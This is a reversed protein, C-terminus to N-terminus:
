RLIRMVIDGEDPNETTVIYHVPTQRSIETFRQTADCPGPRILGDAFQHYDNVARIGNDIITAHSNHQHRGPAYTSGNGREEGRKHLEDLTITLFEDREILLTYTQHLLLYFQSLDYISNTIALFEKSDLVYRLVKLPLAARIPNNFETRFHLYQVLVPMGTIFAQLNSQIQSQLNLHNVYAKYENLKQYTQYFVKEQFEGQAAAEDNSTTYVPKIWSQGAQQQVTLLAMREFCRNLLICADDQNTRISLFHFTSLLRARVFHCVKTRDTNGAIRGGNENNNIAHPALIPGHLNQV